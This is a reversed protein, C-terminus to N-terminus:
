WISNHIETFGAIRGIDVKRGNADLMWGTFYGVFQRFAIETIPKAHLQEKHEGSPEFNLCVERKGEDHITWTKFPDNADFDFIICSHRKRKKNIWVANEPYFSENVLTAFNVGIPLKESNYGGFCCWYWNTERKPYGGSWDYVCTVDNESDSLLKGNFTIKIKSPKLSPYKETFMWATTTVPNIVRLPEDDLSYSFYAKIILKSEFNANISFEKKNHSKIISCESKSDKFNIIYDDPNRDFQLKKTPLMFRRNFYYKQNKKLDYYFTFINKAYSLDVIGIGIVFDSSSFGIYNFQHYKFKKKLGKIEKGFLNYLKFDKYNWDILSDIVGYNVKNGDNILKIM